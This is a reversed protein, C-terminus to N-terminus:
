AVPRTSADPAGRWPMHQGWVFWDNRWLAFGLPMVVIIPVVRVPVRLVWRGPGGPLQTPLVGSGGGSM